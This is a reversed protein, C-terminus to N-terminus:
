DEWGNMLVWDIDEMIEEAPWTDPLLIHESDCEIDLANACVAIARALTEKTDEGSASDVLIRIDPSDSYFSSDQVEINGRSDIVIHNGDPIREPCYANM